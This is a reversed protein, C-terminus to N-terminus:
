AYSAWTVASRGEPADGTEPQRAVANTKTPDDDACALHFVQGRIRRVRALLKDKECVTDTM